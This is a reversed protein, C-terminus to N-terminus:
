PKEGKLEDYKQVNKVAITVIEKCSELRKDKSIESLYKCLFTSAASGAFNIYACHEESETFKHKKALKKGASVIKDTVEKIMDLLYKEQREEFDDM